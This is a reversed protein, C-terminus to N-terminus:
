ITTLKPSTMLYNVTTSQPALGQGASVTLPMLLLELSGSKQGPMTTTPFPM